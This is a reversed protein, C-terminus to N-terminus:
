RSTRERAPEDAETPPTAVVPVGYAALLQQLEAQHRELAAQLTRKLAENGKRVGMAIAFRL